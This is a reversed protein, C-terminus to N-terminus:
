MHIAQGDDAHAAEMIAESITPHPHITHRIDDVTPELINGLFFEAILEKAIVGIIHEAPIELYKPEFPTKVFGFAADEIKAKAKLTFPFKAIQYSNAEEKLTQEKRGISAIEPYSYVANRNADYDITHSYIGVM